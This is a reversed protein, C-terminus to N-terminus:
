DRHTAKQNTTPNKNQKKQKQKKTNLSFLGKLLSSHHSLLQPVSSGRATQNGAGLQFSLVM